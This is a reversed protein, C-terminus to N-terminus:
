RAAAGFARRFLGVQVSDYPDFCQGTGDRPASPTLHNRSKGRKAPASKQLVGQGCSAARCDAACGWVGRGRRRLDRLLRDGVLVMRIAVLQAFLARLELRRVGAFHHFTWDARLARAPDEHRGPLLLLDFVEVSYIRCQPTADFLLKPPLHM